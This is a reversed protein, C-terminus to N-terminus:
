WMLRRAMLVVCRIFLLLLLLGLYLWSHVMAFFLDSFASESTTTEGFLQVRQVLTGMLLTFLVIGTLAGASFRGDRLLRYVRSNSFGYRLTAACIAIFAFLILNLPFAWLTINVGGGILLQIFCGIFAVILSTAFGKLYIHRM